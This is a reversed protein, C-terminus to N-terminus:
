APARWAAPVVFIILAGLADALLDGFSFSRSPIFAQGLETIFGYMLLALLINRLLAQPFAQLALVALAAFVLAHQLKDWMNVAPLSSTPLWMLTTILVVAVALAARWWRVDIKQLWM